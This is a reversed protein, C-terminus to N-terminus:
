WEGLDNMILEMEENKAIRDEEFKTRAEMLENQFTNPFRFSIWNEQVFFDYCTFNFVYRLQRLSKNPMPQELNSPKLNLHSWEKRKLWKKKKRKLYNYFNKKENKSFRFVSNRFPAQLMSKQFTSIKPSESIKFSFRECSIYRIQMRKIRNKLKM